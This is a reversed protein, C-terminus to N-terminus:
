GNAIQWLKGHGRCPDAADRNWIDSDRHTGAVPTRRSGIKDTGQGRAWPRGSVLREREAKVFFSGETVVVDGPRVGSAVEVNEGSPQGLSVEGEIFKGPDKPNALYIVTRDGVNQVASRPVRPMSAGPGVTVVVDGYM